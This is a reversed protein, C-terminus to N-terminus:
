GKVVCLRSSIYILKVITNDYWCMKIKRRLKKAWSKWETSSLCFLGLSVSVDTAFTAQKFNYYCSPPFYKLTKLVLVHSFVMEM